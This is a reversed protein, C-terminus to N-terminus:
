LTIRPQDGLSEKVTDVMVEGIDTYPIYPSTFFEFVKRCLSRKPRCEEFNKTSKSKYQGM